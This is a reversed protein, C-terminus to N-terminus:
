ANVLSKIGELAGELTLNGQYYQRIEDEIAMMTTEKQNFKHFPKLSALTKRYNVVARAACEMRESHSELMVREVCEYTRGSYPSVRMGKRKPNLQYIPFMGGSEGNRKRRVYGSEYLLYDCNTIPDHYCVTGNDAQRQSTVEVCKLAQLKNM